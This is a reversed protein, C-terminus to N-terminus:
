SRLGGRRRPRSGGPGSVAAILSGILAHLLWGAFLGALGWRPDLTLTYSWEEWTRRLIQPDGETLLLMPRTWVGAAAFAAGHTSLVDERAVQRDIETGTNSVAPDSNDRMRVRYEEFSIDQSRAIERYQAVNARVEDVAGGLRQGYADTFTPVQSGLVAGGLVFVLLILDRLVTM